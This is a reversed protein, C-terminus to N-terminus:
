GAPVPLEFWTDTRDHQFAASRFLELDTPAAADVEAEVARAGQRWLWALTSALLRAGHEPGAPDPLALRHITGLRGHEEDAAVTVLAQGAPGGLGDAFRVTSETGPVRASRGGASGASGSIVTTDPVPVAVALRSGAHDARSPLLLRHREGSPVVGFRRALRLAAPHSGYACARVVDLGADARGPVASLGPGLLEAASTAVGMSRFEPAVVLGAIGVPPCSADLTVVAALRPATGAAVAGRRLRTRVEVTTRDGDASPAPAGFGMERDARRARELLARAAAGPPGDSWRLDVTRPLYSRRAATM